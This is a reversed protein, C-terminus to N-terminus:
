FKKGKGLVVSVLTGTLTAPIAVLMSYGKDQAITLVALLAFIAQFSLHRHLPPLLTSPPTLPDSSSIPDPVCVCRPSSM